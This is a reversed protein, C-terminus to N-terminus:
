FIGRKMYRLDDDNLVFWDNTRTVICDEVDVGADFLHLDCYTVARSKKKVTDSWILKPTTWSKVDRIYAKIQRTSLFVPSFLLVRGRKTFCSWTHIALSRAAPTM